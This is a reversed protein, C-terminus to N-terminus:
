ARQLIMPRVGPEGRRQRAALMLAPVLTLAAVITGTVVPGVVGLDTHLSAAAVATSVATGANFAAVALASGLTPATPVAGVALDTLVANASLGVIGLVVVLALVAATSTSLLALGCLTLTTLAPVAVITAYRHTDGLRGGLLSGGLTGVGFAVLVVPVLGIRVGARDTLLPVLYSYTALVGGSATACAALSLWHPRSRLAALESGLPRLHEPQVDNPVHRLVLGAAAVALLALAWFPSRWGALQGAFAGLPVGVVNALMGGATVVGLARSSAAPGAARGAVVFAVSWFAGTAWATVFRAALLLAFSDGVAVVVDGAAFVALSLVLLRRRQVRRALLATAPAGVIMGLAFATILLGSRAVSTHLDVAIQPLLGAVAFETTLMLFTCAAMAHVVVPLARRSGGRERSM